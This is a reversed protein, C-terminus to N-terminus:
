WSTILELSVQNESLLAEAKSFIKKDFKITLTVLNAMMALARRNM